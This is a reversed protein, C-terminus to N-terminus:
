AGVREKLADQLIQSFNIGQREAMTNLWSPITLTKKVSKSDYFKRYEITDCTVLSVFSGDDPVSVSHIDSTAPISAGKEELDYLTLCLVDQAMEMAEVISEGQTYCCEFDPFQVTIFDGDKTFVAPYAYKAM